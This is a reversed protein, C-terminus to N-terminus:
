CFIYNTKCVVEVGIAAANGVPWFVGFVSSVQHGELVRENLRSNKSVVVSLFRDCEKGSDHKRMGNLLSVENM